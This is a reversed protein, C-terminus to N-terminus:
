KLMNKAIEVVKNLADNLKGPDKGGAQAMNPRGGGNGGAMKAVERVINGAHLGKSIAEPSAMAVFVVKGGESSGLVILYEDLQDKLRDGINRVMNMELNPFAHSIVPIGDILTKGELIESLHASAAKTKLLENEKMLSKLEEMMHGSKSIIENQNAKVTEMVQRLTSEVEQYYKIATAGTVAEIRRVGAAVGGESIIKILGAESSNSLHTGGCLELSFNGVSVVRVQDAYNESFLAMAGMKQAEEISTEVVTVASAKLIEENVISEVKLLEETSMANFHNFDFRLRENSVYSGAQDVHEGLVLKLARHLLHTATHNRATNHRKFADVELTLRQNVTIIGEIVEGKHLYVGNNTKQCDRVIIKLGDALLMGQDGTQGGSEAYFPTQDVLIDVKDGITATEVMKNKTVIGQCIATATLQDYGVFMTPGQEKLISGLGDEWGLEEGNDRAKRARERQAEMSKEFGDEDVKMDIEDLIERTLDLPFGYTDYLKFAAEGPLIGKDRHAEIYSNLIEIGQDITQYFREEELSIVKKIFDKKEILIPYAEGSQEIVVDVIDKLFMEEIGLLKGHRAARRLLRRLVYGRGENNPLIGDGVMFSVARIHDTIIRISVDTKTDDGYPKGSIEVVKDLVKRITDVEFISGVGQMVAAIRELGMGTDINKKDLPSYTGDESRNFQTFVHNWIEIYQDCECGPLHDPDGCGFSEGRDYYIESCPGCPGTGIEWFNDEKGLRIIREEPVKIINKWIDYAEDDDIYVSPWLKDEPIELVETFFEWGWQLSEQKFYDGFSFNGLMEFFTAHRATYGVNEIDGTRICKQCTVMRNKPPVEAGTFYNKLPVMGANILLLSKDNQPVLPFSSAVYHGKSEFFDLFKKRIENLGMPKM